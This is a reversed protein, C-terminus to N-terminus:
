EAEELGGWLSGQQQHILKEGPKILQGPGEYGLLSRDNGGALGAVALRSAAAEPVFM